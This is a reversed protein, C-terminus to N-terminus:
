SIKILKYQIYSLRNQLTRGLSRTLQGDIIKGTNSFSFVKVLRVKNNYQIARDTRFQEEQM